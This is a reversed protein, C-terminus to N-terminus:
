PEVMARKNRNGPNNTGLKIRKRAVEEYEMAETTVGWVLSLCHLKMLHVVLFFAIYLFTGVWAFLSGWDSWWHSVGAPIEQDEVVHNNWQLWEIASFGIAYSVLILAFCRYFLALSTGQTEGRTLGMRKFLRRRNPDPAEFLWGIPVSSFFALVTSALTLTPIHEVGITLAIADRMPTLVYNACTVNLLAWFGIWTAAAFPTYHQPLLRASITEFFKTSSYLVEFHTPDSSQKKRLPTGVIPPQNSKDEKHYKSNEQQQTGVTKALDNM